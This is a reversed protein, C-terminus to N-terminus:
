TALCDQNNFSSAQARSQKRWALSGSQHSKAILVDQRFAVIVCIVNDTITQYDWHYLMECLVDKLRQQGIEIM